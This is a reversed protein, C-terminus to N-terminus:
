RFRKISAKFHSFTLTNDNDDTTCVIQVTSGNTLPPTGLAHINYVEGANRLFMTATSGVDIVGDIRLAITTQKSAHNCSVDASLHSEFSGVYGNTYVLAPANSVMTLGFGDIITNTFVGLVPVFTGGTTVTTNSTTTLYAYVRCQSEYIHGGVVVDGTASINNFNGNPIQPTMSSEGFCLQSFFSIWLFLIKVFNKM